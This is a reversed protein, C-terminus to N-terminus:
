DNTLNEPNGGVPEAPEAPKQNIVISANIGDGNRDIENQLVDPRLLKQFDENTNEGDLGQALFHASENQISKSYFKPRSPRNTVPDMCFRGSLKFLELVERTQFEPLVDNLNVGECEELLKDIHSNMFPFQSSIFESSSMRDRDTCKKAFETYDRLLKFIRNQHVTKAAIKDEKGSNKTPASLTVFIKLESNAKDGDGFNRQRHTEPIFDSLVQEAGFKKGSIIFSASYEGNQIVFSKHFKLYFKAIKQATWRIPIKCLLDEIGKQLNIFAINTFATAPLTSLLSTDPNARNQPEM